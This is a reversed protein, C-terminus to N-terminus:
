TCRESEKDTLRREPQGSSLPSPPLGESQHVSDRHFLGRSQQCAMSVGLYGRCYWCQTTTTPQRLVERCLIISSCTAKYDRKIERGGKRGRGGKGGKGGERRGM